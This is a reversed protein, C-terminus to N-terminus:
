GNDVGGLSFNINSIHNLTEDTQCLGWAEKEITCLPTAKLEQVQECFEFRHEYYDKYGAVDHSYSWALFIIILFFIFGKWFNGGILLHKWNIKGNWQAPWVQRYGSPTKQIFLGPKIEETHKPELNM